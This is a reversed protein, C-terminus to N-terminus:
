GKKRIKDKVDKIVSTGPSVHNNKGIVVFPAVSSGAGLLVNRKIVVGGSVSAGVGVYVNDAIQTNVGIIAGADIITNHEIFVHPGVNCGQGIVIGETISAHADILASPHIVNIMEYGIAKMQHFYKERLNNDSGIAVVGGHVGQKFLDKLIDPKGIVKYGLIEKNKQKEDQDVFGVIEYNRDHLLISTVFMASSGSGIIVVKM